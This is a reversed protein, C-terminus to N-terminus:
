DRINYAVNDQNKANIVFDSITVPSPVGGYRYMINYKFNAQGPVTTNSTLTSGNLKFEIKEIKNSEEYPIYYGDKDCVYVYVHDFKFSEEANSINIIPVCTIILVLSIFSIIVKKLM